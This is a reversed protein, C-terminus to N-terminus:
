EGVLAPVRREIMETWARNYERRWERLRRCEYVVRRRCQARVVGTNGRCEALDAILAAEHHQQMAAATKLPTM